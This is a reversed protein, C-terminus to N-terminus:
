GAPAPDDADGATAAASASASGSTPGCTAKGSGATSVSCRANGVVRVDGSGAISIEVEGDSGFVADGSGAIDVSGSDAKLGEMAIDGSGAISIALNDATGSGSVGGSGAIDIELDDASVTDVTVDGSGAIDIAASGQLGDAEVRGSGAIEIGSLAPLTVRITAASSTMTDKWDGSERGVAITGDEVRFRLLGTTESDGEVSVDFAPGRTVIMTDPGYLAVSTPADGSRDLESLPVGDFGNSSFSCAALLLSAATGLAFTLGTTRM